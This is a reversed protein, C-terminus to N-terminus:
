KLELLVEDVDRARANSFGRSEECLKFGCKELVRISGVNDKAAGGYIPREKVEMLFQSLAKTAIGRGWFERGIWYMVERRGQMPFKAVHGVVEGDDGDLVVTRVIVDADTLLKAWHADFAQRDSSDKSTFAAMHCSTADRRHEFFTPLDSERVRRLSVRGAAVKQGSNDNLFSSALRKRAAVLVTSYDVVVCGGNERIGAAIANLLSERSGQALLIHDSQTRLLDCWADASYRHSWAYDKYVVDEYLGSGEVDMEAEKPRRTGRGVPTKEALHPAFQEYAAQVATQVPGDQGYPRNAVIVLTGHTKLVRATKTFRVEPDIWHFAQASLVLDFKSATEEWEEFTCVQIDFDNFRSCKNRAIEAMAPGPELGVVKYGLKLLEVTAKGTGSGIELVLSGPPCGTVQPLDTFLQEPYSPRAREYQAAVSDFSFRQDM